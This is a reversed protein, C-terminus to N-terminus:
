AAFANGIRSCCPATTSRERRRPRCRSAAGDLARGRPLGFTIQEEVSVDCQMTRIEAGVAELRRLTKAAEASASRRGILALHRAGRAVLWEATLLGLGTLGGTILYTADSRISTPAAAEADQALVIKGIHRAQSM